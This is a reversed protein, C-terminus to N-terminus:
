DDELYEDNEENIEKEEEEEFQEAYKDYAIMDLEAKAFGDLKGTEEYYKDSELIQKENCRVIWYSWRQIMTEIEDDEIAQLQEQTFTDNWSKYWNKGDRSYETKNESNNKRLLMPGIWEVGKWYKSENNNIVFKDLKDLKLDKQTENSKLWILEKKNNDYTENKIHKGGLDPFNEDDNSYENTNKEKFLNKNNTFDIRRDNIRRDNIRRDNIRRDNIRRDNIRRDNIRRDNDNIDDNLLKWRSNLENKNNSSSFTNKKLNDFRGM